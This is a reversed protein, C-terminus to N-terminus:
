INKVTKYLNNIEEIKQKLNANEEKEQSLAQALSNKQSTLDEVLKKMNSSKLKGKEVKLKDM